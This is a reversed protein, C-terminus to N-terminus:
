YTRMIPQLGGVASASEKREAMERIRKLLNSVPLGPREERKLVEFRQDGKLVHTDHHERILSMALDKSDPGDAGYVKHNCGDRPCIWTGGPGRPAFSLLPESVLNLSGCTAGLNLGDKGHLSHDGDARAEVVGEYDDDSPIVIGEDEEADDLTPELRSYRRKNRRRDDAHHSESKRKMPSVRTPSVLESNDEDDDSVFGRGGREAAKNAFKNVTKPRLASKGKKAQWSTRVPSDDESDSDSPTHMIADGASRPRHLANLRTRVKPSEETRPRLAIRAMRRLVAAPLKATSLDDYIPEYTWHFGTGKEPKRLIWLLQPAHACIYSAAEAENDINYEQLLLRAVADLNINGDKLAGWNLGKKMLRSIVRARWWNEDKKPKKLSGPILHQSNPTSSNTSRGRRSHQSVIEVSKPGTLSEAGPGKREVKVFEGKGQAKDRIAEYEERFKNSVHAHFSTQTWPIDERSERMLLFLSERYAAFVGEASISFHRRGTKRNKRENSHHLDAAFYLLKLAEVMEQFLGKYARSPKIKFWGAIGRAWIAISKDDYQGYAWRHVDHVELPIARHPTPRLLLHANEGAPDELKGTVTVPLFEDAKFLNILSSDKPDLVEVNTLLFEPWDNDDLVSPDPKLVKSELLAM